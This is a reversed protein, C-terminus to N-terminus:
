DINGIQRCKRRTDIKKTIGKIRIRGRRERELENEEERM